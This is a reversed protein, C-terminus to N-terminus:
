HEPAIDEKKQWGILLIGAIILITGAIQAAFINEGLVWHAQLITSVPGISSIIAANNTGIRKVGYSVLFSPIVTSFVAILVGYLLLTGSWRVSAYDSTILFHLMVGATAALMAYATFKSAGVKPILRGSAAIYISYTVACLLVLVSGLIFHDGTATVEIEGFYAFAIGAYCLAVAFWQRRSVPQRFVYANILITFTPYLFLILREIGASVYQLGLFDLLSSVYYGMLGTLSVLLFERPTLRINEKRGSSIFAATVYFPLSFLMRLALLTVAPVAIDAFAKKVIVAKTSFLLAGLIAVIYGTFLTGQQKM